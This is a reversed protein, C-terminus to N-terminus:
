LSSPLPAVLRKLEDVVFTGFQAVLGVELTEKLKTGDGEEVGSLNGGM